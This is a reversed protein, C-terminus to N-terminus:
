QNVSGNDAVASGVILTNGVVAPPSTEEYDEPSHPAILLGNRLDIMGNDGFNLCPKGTAADLAILRADITALFMRRHGEPSVWTSVGRTANDGYGQDKNIHADYAWREKGTVPDLAIVRGLPTALYLTGDVYLPTDEFQTPKSGDKPAYADGTRFTWAVKLSHVNSRNVTKLPSFRQGGPDHGYSPWDGNQGAWLSFAAVFFFGSLARTKSMNM